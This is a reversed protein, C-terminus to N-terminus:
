EAGAIERLEKAAREVKAKYDPEIIEVLTSEFSAELKWLAVKVAADKEEERDSLWDFLVLAARRDITIQVEPRNM